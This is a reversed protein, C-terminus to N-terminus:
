NKSHIAYRHKPNCWTHAHIGILLRLEKLSYTRNERKDIVCLKNETIFVAHNICDFTCYYKM